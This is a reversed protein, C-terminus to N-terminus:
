RRRRRILMAIGGVALLSMTAPEPAIVPSTKQEGTAEGVVLYTFILDGAAAASAVIKGIPYAPHATTNGNSLMVAYGGTTGETLCSPVNALIGFSYSNASLGYGVKQNVTWTSPDLGNPGYRLRNTNDALVAMAAIPAWTTTDYAQTPTDGGIFSWIGGETAPPPNPVWYAPNAILAGSASTITYATINVDAGTSNYIFAQGDPKVLLRISLDTVTAANAVVASMLLVGVIAGIKRM